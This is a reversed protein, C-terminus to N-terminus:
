SGIMRRETKPLSVDPPRIYLPEVSIPTNKSIIKKCAATAIALPSAYSINRFEYNKKHGSVEAFRNNADGIITVNNSIKEIQSMIEEAPAAMAESCPKGDPSFIQAYFDDRKTEILVAIYEHDHCLGNQKDTEMLAEFTTVGCVPIDLALGFAKATSLGIRLGTFAGPGRTVAIADLDSYQLSAENLVLETIPLLAEAHGRLMPESQSALMGAGNRWIGASCANM